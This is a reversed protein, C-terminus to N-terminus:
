ARPVGRGRYPLGGVREALRALRGGDRDAGGLKGTYARRRDRVRYRPRGVRGFRLRRTGLGRLDLARPGRQGLDDRHILRRLSASTPLPATVTWTSSSGRSGAM